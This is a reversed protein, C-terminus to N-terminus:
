MKGLLLWKQHTKRWGRNEMECLLVQCQRTGLGGLIFQSQKNSEALCFIGFINNSKKGWKLGRDKLTELNSGIETNGTGYKRAVGVILKTNTSLLFGM